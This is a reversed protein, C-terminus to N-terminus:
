NDLNNQRKKAITVLVFNGLSAGCGAFLLYLIHHTYQYIGMGAGVTLLFTLTTTAGRHLKNLAIIFCSSLIDITFYGFFIIVATWFDVEKFM